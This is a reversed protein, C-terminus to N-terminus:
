GRTRANAIHESLPATRHGGDSRFPTLMRNQPCPASIGCVSLVAPPANKYRNERKRKAAPKQQETPDETPDGSEGEDHGPSPYRSADGASTADYQIQSDSVAPDGSSPLPSSVVSTNPSQSESMYQESEGYVYYMSNPPSPFDVFTGLEEMASTPLFASPSSPTHAHLYGQTRTHVPSTKILRILPATAHPHDRFSSTPALVHGHNHAPHGTKYLDILAGGAWLITRMLLSHSSALSWGGPAVSLRPQYMGDLDSPFCRFLSLGKSPHSRPMAHM